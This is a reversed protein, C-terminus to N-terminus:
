PRPCLGKFSLGAVLPVMPLKGEPSEEARLLVGGLRLFGFVPCRPLVPVDRPFPRLIAVYTM